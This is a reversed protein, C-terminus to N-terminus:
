VWWDGGRALVIARYRNGALRKKFVGGGLDDAQGKMVDAIAKCLEADTIKAKRAAKDFWASSFVRPIRKDPVCLFLM